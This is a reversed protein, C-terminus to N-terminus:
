IGDQTKYGPICRQGAESGRERRGSRRRRKSAFAKGQGEIDGGISSALVWIDLGHPFVPVEGDLDIFDTNVNITCRLAIIILALVALDLRLWAPTQSLNEWRLMVYRAQKIGERSTGQELKYRM